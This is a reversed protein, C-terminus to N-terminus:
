LTNRIEEQLQKFFIQGGTAKLHNLIGLARRLRVQSSKANGAIYILSRQKGATLAHFLNSGEEDQELLEKMEEPVPMGYESQDKRMTVKVRSGEELKLKSRIKKNVNFFYGGTGMPMLACAFTETENLTCMVRRDRGEIFPEAQKATVPIYFYWLNSNFRGMEATFSGEKELKKKAM